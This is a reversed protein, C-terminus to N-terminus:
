HRAASVALALASAAEYRLLVPAHLEQEEAEWGRLLKEVTPRAAPRARARDARQRRSRRAVTADNSSHARVGALVITRTAMLLLTQGLAVM